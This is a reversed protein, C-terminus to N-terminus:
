LKSHIRPEMDNGEYGRRLRDRFRQMGRLWRAHQTAKIQVYEPVKEHPFVWFSQKEISELTCAAVQTPTALGDAVASNPVHRLNEPIFPTDVSQPCLCHVQIQPHVIALHEAFSVAAAKSSGYCADELMALLGAASATIVFIGCEWPDEDTILERIAIVHSQLNVRFVRDWQADSLRAVHDNLAASATTSLLPPHIMIGANSCYIDIRGWKQKVARIMARVQLPDTVDCTYTWWSSSEVFNPTSAADKQHRLDAVVVRAGEKVFAQALARGIGSSGGTVIVVKNKFRHSQTPM